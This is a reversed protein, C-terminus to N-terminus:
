IMHPSATQMQSNGFYRFLRVLFRTRDVRVMMRKTTLIYAFAGGMRLAILQPIFAFLVLAGVVIWRKRVLGEIAYQEPTLSYIGHYAILALVLAGVTVFSATCFFSSIRGPTGIWLVREGEGLKPTVGSTDLLDNPPDFVSLGPKIM